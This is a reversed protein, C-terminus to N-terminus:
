GAGREPQPAPPPRFARVLAELRAFSDPGPRPSYRAAVYAEVVRSVQAALEPRRASVRRAFDVPGEAAGRAVGARALRACFRLWAAQARDSDGRRLDLALLMVLVLGTAALGIGLALALAASGFSGLGLRGMLATQTRSSYGVLDESWATRAADFLARAQAIVPWDIFMRAPGTRAGLAGELGSEVREPAVAATPDVRVWGQGALWIESWAHASSQRVLWYGGYRNFEGGQYGAVVRAPIGAARMLVTFASAYHECYGARTDFLFSDVPDAGLPPPDLTYRYPEDHFRGLVRRVFDVPDSAQAMLSRALARAQPAADQPLRLDAARTEPPVDDGALSPASRAPYSFPDTVPAPLGHPGPLRVLQGTRLHTTLAGPWEVVHDLVVLWSRGTPELLIRYDYIPTGPAPRPAAPAAAAAARRWTRGDFSEFVLARWYRADPPPASGAFWARFAPDDSLGLASIDGPHMDEAMGTVAQSTGAVTWLRGEIRPVFLFLVIALPAGLALLRAARRVARAPQAPAAPQEPAAPRQAAVLAATLLWCVVLVYAFRLPGQDYLLAAACLFYGIFVLIAQDRATRTEALKLGAMLTLLATGAALGNLTRYAAFVAVVTVLVLAIKLGRRPLGRGRSEAYLRAALAVYVSGSVWFPLHDLNAAVALALAGLTAALTRVVPTV